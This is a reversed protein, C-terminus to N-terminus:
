KFPEETGTCSLHSAKQSHLSPSTLQLFAGQAIGSTVSPITQLSYMGSPSHQGENSHTSSFSSDSKSDPDWVIVVKAGSTSISTSSTSSIVVM